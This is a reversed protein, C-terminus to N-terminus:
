TIEVLVAYVVGRLALRNPNQAAMHILAMVATDKATAIAVGGREPGNQALEHTV